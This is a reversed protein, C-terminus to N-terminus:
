AFADFHGDAVPPKKYKKRDKKKSGNKESDNKRAQENKDSREQDSPKRRVVVPPIMAEVPDIHYDSSM